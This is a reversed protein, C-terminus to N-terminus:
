LAFNNIIELFFLVAGFEHPTTTYMFAVDIYETYFLIYNGIKEVFYSFYDCRTEIKLSNILVAVIYGGGANFVDNSKM